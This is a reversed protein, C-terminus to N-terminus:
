CHPLSVESQLGQPNMVTGHTISFRLDSSSAAWEHNGLSIYTPALATCARIFPLIRDQRDLLNEGKQARYGIFLDGAAAILSPRSHRLIEITNGPDANHLDALLAIRHPIGAHIRYVREKM